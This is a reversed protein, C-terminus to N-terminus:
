LDGLKEGSRSCSMSCSYSHSEKDKVFWDGQGPSQVIVTWEIDKFDAIVGSRPFPKNECRSPPLLAGVQVDGNSLSSVVLQDTWKPASM